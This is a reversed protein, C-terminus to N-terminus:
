RILQVFGRKEVLEFQCRCVLDYAYIGPRCFHTGDRYSGNWQDGHVDSDFVREGWRDFVQLRCDGLAEFDFSFVDNIGDNDPTFASPAFVRDEFLSLNLISIHVCGISDVEEVEYRGGEKLEEGLWEFTGCQQVTSETIFPDDLVVLDLYLNSDCGASSTLEAAFSGSNSWMEGNWEIPVCTEAVQFISYSPHIEATMIVVSDCGLLNVENLTYAGSETIWGGNWELSDCGSASLALTDLPIVELELGANYACGDTTLLTQSYAGSETLVQGNWNFAGCTSVTTDTSPAPLFALNVLLGDDCNGPTPYSYHSGESSIWDGGPLQLSDGECVEWDLTQSVEPYDVVVMLTAVDESCGLYKTLSVEYAGSDSYTHAPSLLSSTSGDGFQWLVSDLQAVDLSTGFQSPTGPCGIEAIIDPVTSFFSQVFPPLGLVANRGELDFADFELDCASGLSDPHHIVSLYPQNYQPIYMKGDVALQLAGGRYPSGTGELTAILLRSDIIDADSGANLDWQYLNGTEINGGYLVSGNPSFSIGYCGNGPDYLLVPNSVLGTSTDFDLLEFGPARMASALHSGDSSVTLYGWGPYGEIQGVSSIVPENVGDCDVLYAYYNNNNYGHGIVWYNVGDDHRVAAIKEVSQTLLVSNKTDNVIDGFGGNLTMDVESWKLGGPGGEADVTFVFFRSSNSPNPVVIGSQASSPDGSLGFGNPMQNHERDWVRIGDTYFLLEGATNSITACGENTSLAGDLLVTPSGDAFSVGANNGFFWNVAEGQGHASLMALCILCLSVWRASVFQMTKM